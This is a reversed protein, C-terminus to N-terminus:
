NAIIKLAESVPITEGDLYAVIFCSSYGKSKAEQQHQKAQDYNSTDGYFYKYGNGYNEMSVGRLGKFNYPKTELKRAGAAIQVKFTVSKNTIDEDGPEILVDDTTYTLHNNKVYAMVANYLSKAMTQKGRKSNLYDEEKRHTLFGLEVLVSPMSTQVLVLFGAQKVGRSKRKATAIFEDEIKRALEISQDLNDEARLAYAIISEPKNPDFGQYNEEYNDELFIASNERKVVELNTAEKHLGLVFTESGYATGSKGPQANCHISIFLDAAHNNAVKAREWLTPFKDNKRTYVVEINNDKELLKGLELSVDLAVDKETTRYRGTGPTGGDKGGHGPDIVVVFKSSEAQSFLPQWAIALVCVLLCSLKTKM